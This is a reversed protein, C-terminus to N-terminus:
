SRSIREDAGRESDLVRLRVESGDALWLRPKHGAAWVFSCGLEAVLRGISLASPSNKLVNVTIEHGLAPVWSVVEETLIIDGSAGM